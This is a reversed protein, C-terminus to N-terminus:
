TDHGTTYLAIAYDWDKISQAFNGLEVVEGLTLGSYLANELASMVYDIPQLDHPSKPEQRDAM